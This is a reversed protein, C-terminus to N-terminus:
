QAKASIVALVVGYTYGKGDPDGSAVGIALQRAWPPVSLNSVDVEQGPPVMWINATSQGQVLDRREFLKDMAKGFKKMKLKGTAVREALAALEAELQPAAQPGGEPWRSALQNWAEERLSSAGETPAVLVAAAGFGSRRHVAGLSVLGMEPDLVQLRVSPHHTWAWSMAEASGHEWGFVAGWVGHAVDPMPDRELAKRLYRVRAREGEPVNDLLERVPAADGVRELAGLDYRAREANLSKLLQDEFGALDAPDDLANDHFLVTTPPEVGAYMSFFFPQDPSRRKEYRTMAVRYVGPTQPVQFHVDFAGDGELPYVAVEPGEMQVYLAYTGGSELLTGPIRVEAGPEVVRPFPEFAVAGELVCVMGVLGNDIDATAVAVPANKELGELFQAVIEAAGEESGAVFTGLARPEQPLGVHEAIFWSHVRDADGRRAVALRLQTYRHLAHSVVVDGADQGTVQAMIRRDRDVVASAATTDYTTAPSGLVEPTLVEAVSTGGIPEPPFFEELGQAWGVAIWWCWLLM